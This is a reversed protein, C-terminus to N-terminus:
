IARLVKEFKEFDEDGGGKTPDMTSPTSPPHTIPIPNHTNPQKAKALQLKDDRHTLQARAKKAAAGAKGRESASKSTQYFKAIREDCKEHRYGEETLTFFESLVADTAARRDETDAKIKRYIARTDSPLPGELSYYWDILKRYAADEDWTLHATKETYDGMHFCYYKM